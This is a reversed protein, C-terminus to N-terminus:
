QQRAYQLQVYDASRKRWWRELHIETANWAGKNIVYGLPLGQCNGIETVVQVWGGQLYARYVGLGAGELSKIVPFKKLIICNIYLIYTQACKQMLLKKRTKIFKKYCHFYFVSKLNIIWSWCMHPTKIYHQTHPHTYQSPIHNSSLSWSKAEHCTYSSEGRATTVWWTQFQMSVYTHYHSCSSMLWDVLQEMLLSM